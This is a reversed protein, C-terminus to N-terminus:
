ETHPSLSDLVRRTEELLKEALRRIPEGEIGPRQEALAVDVAIELDMDMEDPDDIALTCVIAEDHLRRPPDIDAWTTGVREVGGRPHFSTIASLGIMCFPLHRHKDIGVLRDLMWLPHVAPEEGQIRKYPQAREILAMAEPSVDGSVKLPVVEGSGSACPEKIKIPFATRENPKGGSALVLNWALHDLSARLNTLFDGFVLGIEDPVPQVNRVILDFHPIDPPPLHRQAKRSQFALRYPKCEVFREVLSDLKHLHQEARRLKAEPSGRQATPEVAM